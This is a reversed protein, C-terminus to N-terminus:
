RWIGGIPRAKASLGLRPLGWADEITRLLGYHNTSGAFVSGPRVAPGLALAEVRGGGGEGSSGEDFVVFVVGGALAPSRLLPVVHRRLWADGTAVPCDHMDDCLDPVVLAFDPLRRRAADRALQTLPVVRDRRARSDAVARFYLFPDHKKAYRGASSGTWGPEPLGEAYTKWTRGAAALTDALSRAAVTCSTCDSTIGQTSCSVLALYNPLSPHTVADYHTLTAYRRALAAFTPADASGAISSREHNEFVVVLVHTFRPLPVRPPAPGAPPTWSAAAGCATTALV